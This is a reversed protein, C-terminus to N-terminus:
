EGEQRCSTDTGSDDRPVHTLLDSGNREARRVVREFMEVMRPDLRTGAEKQMIKLAAEMTFAGRYSRSSTLADFVDAMQIIRATLPIDEGSLGDPYGSGDWAEHHNRVGGLVPELRHIPKLVEYSIVPHEKIHEFEEDTLKGPKGLVDDRIGIKGVDHLRGAWALIQLDDSNFDLEAGLLLSWRAVRESHGSTYNDKADIAQVMARVIDISMQQLDHFLRVRHAMQAVQGMVTEAMSQDGTQYPDEAPRCFVAAGLIEEGSRLPVVLLSLAQAKQSETRPAQLTITRAAANRVADRIEGHPDDAILDRCAEPPSAGSEFRAITRSFEGETDLFCAFRARLSTSMRDMAIDYVEEVSTRSISARTVEFLLNLQEYSQLVEEALRVNEEERASLEEALHATRDLVTDIQEGTQAASCPPLAFATSGDTEDDRLAFVRYDESDSTSQPLVHIQFRQECRGGHPLSPADDGSVMAQLWACGRSKASTSDGDLCHKLCQKPLRPTVGPIRLCGISWGVLSEIAGILDHVQAGANGSDSQHVSHDATM